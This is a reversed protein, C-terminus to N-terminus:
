KTDRRIQVGYLSISGYIQSLAIGLNSVVSIISEMEEKIMEWGFFSIRYIASIRYLAYTRHM